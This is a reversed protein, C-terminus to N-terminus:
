AAIAARTFHSVIENLESAIDAVNVVLVRSCIEDSLKSTLSQTAAVTGAVRVPMLIRRPRLVSHLREVLEVANHKPGLLYPIVLRDHRGPGKLYKEVEEVNIPSAFVAGCVGGRSELLDTLSAKFFDDFPNIITIRFYGDPTTTQLTKVM